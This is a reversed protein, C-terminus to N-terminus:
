VLEYQICCQLTLLQLKNVCKDYLTSLRIIPSLAVLILLGGMIPKQYIRTTEIVCLKKSSVCVHQILGASWHM